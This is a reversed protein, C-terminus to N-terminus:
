SIKADAPSKLERGCMPCYHIKFMGTADYTEIDLYNHRLRVKLSDFEHEHNEFLPKNKPYNHCFPCM